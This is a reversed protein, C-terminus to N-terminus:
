SPSRVAVVAFPPAPVPTPTVILDHISTTVALADALGSLVVSDAIRAMHAFESHARAMDCLSAQVEDWRGERIPYNWGGVIRATM